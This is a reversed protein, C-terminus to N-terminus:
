AAAGAMARRPLRVTFETFEGVMSDVEITGGHQQTVIDYSISLGLGTGEGTPKTTFFPQFLKDRIEPSIGIGNDRTRFEVADGLDRTTVKLTPKFKPDGGERQRKTAAYFGNGFLNLCVRTIDQPVLEIPALDRAYDHELTINFGQDQARGGHYALNLAEEVLANLDVARREGTGGRSHELMSKVIGDARRGHEAIKELNSTLMEITEDIETRKNESIAAIVPAAAEKLEDLLEVSLGAFNNVFNLPNKIEHAIGATLQGLSAMKEAQILNAQAARLDRLTAEAADRAARIEAESRKRETIDSYILVFGGDPVANRRVEIVRGDPRTRESRFEQDIHELRRSLETEIDETGFEGREALIRLYDAYSPREALIADPLDLIQQFNRNWAALRLNEDFMVVGDAMNDFTTRLEAQRQRIEDLLRANEMAIVAQAAFNQLLAIQKGTFPRVEQRYATIVGLLADDKRLPVMLLTRIGGLEVGARPMPDDPAAVAIEKLDAIHVLSEGVLLRGIPNNPTPLFGQRAIEGFVPPVGHLAVARFRDGDHTLLGGCAAGCLTHAKELIADFVPTLDGPSSNIVQLIESTATQQELAEQTETILRANEIAIVAQAAFNRLLAIQSDTFPQPEQRYISLVGILTDDKRLAVSLLARGGGNDVFERTRQHGSYYLDTEGADPIHVVNEGGLIRNWTIGDSAPHPDRQLNLPFEAEGHAAVFRFVEGDYIALQGHPASCLRTAKDLMADFVPALDAPSSNIVQLVEATATQQELAERTETILRANEMAIVAQAAFSELLIIQKDTFPKVERRHATIYGLLEDHKRLPLLLLTRVGADLAARREQSTHEFKAIDPVHILREGQLLRERVDGAASRFPERLWTALPEAMDHLAVARFFEGDYTMLAGHEAGCLKHAKELIANFVPALDGPSSNIVGLVEATATQQDLAERTENILRANELAIVAQAAFNEILAIQRDTFLRVQRRYVGFHGLLTGDKRLPVMLLTRAGGLDVAARALPLGMEYHETAVLDEVQVFRQGGVLLLQLGRNVPHRPNRQIFEAFATPAGRNAAAHMSENDDIWLTGIEAECLSIAKDLMANFIAALDGPSSNIVGLVEATATQQELAERTETILRANEMAIVAQAAFNQLLAIQKDSFPRIERRFIGIVGFLKSEKRLPVNLLSRYGGADVLRKFDPRADSYINDQRIDESYAIHEGCVIRDLVSDRPAHFPVRGRFSEGIAPDAHVAAAVEFREGDYSLLSGFAAGCLRLAKELMADFVPALHGPSSNIVQLVEATATQQELAERTETILRANEMAIVAQAAFNQLLAIQKDSFPRVEQRYAVFAGLAANDKRLAVWLATRAGGVDALALRGPEGSRYVDDATIDEVQVIDEGQVIRYHANGPRIQRPQRMQEALAPPVGHVAIAASHDGNIRSLLGFSAECLRMAKELMADFVPALDGPSSNIVQLVEATATQQELAERTEIILRANEMAIVAQAAFNELLAIQKDTFPCVEQRNATIYGLLVGDKRLPVALLTRVGGLGVAARDIPNDAACEEAAIDAIQVFPEGGSLRRALRGPHFPQRLVAAFEEPIGRVAVARFHRDEALTLSGYAAGCLIHAKGLIADFVPALDGPSSNIVQLVEATATQQDLAERTETILRANEMAIVAQAAFNELLAIQKNTFPRVEQRFVCILGLLAKEKLLPVVVATRAGGFEVVARRNPEGARYVDSDMLDLVHVFREGTLIRQATTGAGYAPPNQTRFEAFRAPVGRLAATQFHEGDFTDLWGFAAGCLNLAKELMADFVPGLDGPSSNIVGLVEATATQQDLAEQTETILRANELAIVAQDAFTRVLEIQRDTFPQVRHRALIIIGIPEGERLLPVGLQTRINGLTKAEDLIYEPDSATDAVHVARGELAVRGVISGRGPVLAHQELFAQFKLAAEMTEPSFAVVTAIRYVEGDRRFIATYGADCLRAATEALTDLVPQLDFASRSIVKLVDSTATQYDLSEQLDGTRQQLERYTEASTIAIVAQEAFTQLLAIQADSLGGPEKANISIAGIVTGDRLLPVAVISRMGLNRVFQAIEPDADVDRIHVIQRDLIARGFSGGRTPAMPFQSRYAADMESTTGPADNSLFHILEGDFSWLAAANANCLGRARRTILDFVPQPDGPSASMVKLVDITASQQEIREGYQSNRETLEARSEELLRQLEANARRLGAVTDDLVQTM